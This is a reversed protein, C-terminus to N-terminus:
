TGESGHSQPRGPGGEAAAAGSAMLVRQMQEEESMELALNYLEDADTPLRAGAGAASAPPM